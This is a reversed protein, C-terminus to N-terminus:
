PLRIPRPAWTLGVGGINQRVVRGCEGTSSCFPNENLDTQSYNYLVFLEAHESLHHSFTVGAYYRDFTGNAPVTLGPATVGAIQSSNAYGANLGANWTRALRRSIELMVVDSQAGLLLGSGGNIYHLYRLNVATRPREYQLRAVAVWTLQRGGGSEKVDIVVPGAGGSLTLRPPFQHGWFLEMYTTTFTQGLHSFEFSGYGGVVAATDHPSVSYNYGVEAIAQSGNRLPPNQSPSELFNVFGFAATATLVARPTVRHQLEVVSTNLLRPSNGISAFQAVSFQSLGSGALGALYGNLLSQFVGVGGLSGAGFPAEPLYSFANVFRLYTRKWKLKGDFYVEQLQRNRDANGNPNNFLEAGGVYALKLDTFNRVREVGVTGLIRTISRVSSVDPLQNPNSEVTEIVRFEPVLQDREASLAGQPASGLGTLVVPAQASQTNEETQGSEVEPGVAAPPVEQADLLVRSLALTTLLALSVGVVRM